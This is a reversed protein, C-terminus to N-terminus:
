TNERTQRRLVTVSHEEPLNLRVWESQDERVIKYEAPVEWGLPGIEHVEIAGVRDGGWSFM